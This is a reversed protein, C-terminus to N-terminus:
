ICVNDQIKDVERPTLRFVGMCGINYPLWRCHTRCVCKCSGTLAPATMVRLAKKLVTSSIKIKGRLDHAESAMSHITISTFLSVTVARRGRRCSIPRRQRLDNGQVPQAIGLSGRVGQKVGLGACQASM